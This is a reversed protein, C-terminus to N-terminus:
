GRGLVYAARCATPKRLKVMANFVDAKADKILPKYFLTATQSFYYKAAKRFGKKSIQKTAQKGQTMLHKSVGKSLGNGINSLGGLLADSIVQSVDLNGFGGNDIAQTLISEGASIMANGTFQILAGVVPAAGVTALAGSLAGAATSVLVKQLNVEGNESLQELTSIIGSVVGGVVAGVLIHWFEGDEDVRMVPNNDCYAFLNKDTLATPSATIVDPIDTNIFRCIVPDYYRSQLYYM